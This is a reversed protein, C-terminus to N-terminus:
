KDASTCFRIYLKLISKIVDKLQRSQKIQYIAKNYKTKNTKSFAKSINLTTQTHHQEIHIHHTPPPHFLPVIPKLIDM